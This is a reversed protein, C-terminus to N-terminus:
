SFGLPEKNAFFGGIMCLSFITIGPYAPTFFMTLFFVWTGMVFWFMLLIRHVYVKDSAMFKSIHKLSFDTSFKRDRWFKITGILLGLFLWLFPTITMADLVAQIAPEVEIAGLLSLLSRAVLVALVAMFYYEILRLVRGTSRKQGMSLSSEKVKDMSSQTVQLFGCGISFGCSAHVILTFVHFMVVWGNPALVIISFDDLPLWSATTDLSLALCAAFCVISAIIVVVKQRTVSAFAKKFLQSFIVIMIIVLVLAILAEMM